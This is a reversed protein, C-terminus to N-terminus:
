DNPQKELRSIMPLGEKKLRITYDSEAYDAEKTLSIPKCDYVWELKEIAEKFKVGGSFFDGRVKITLSPLLKSGDGALLEQNTQDQGGDLLLEYSLLTVEVGEAAESFAKMVSTALIQKQKLDTIVGQLEVLQSTELSKTKKELRVKEMRKNTVDGTYTTVTLQYFLFFLILTIIVVIASSVAGILIIDM